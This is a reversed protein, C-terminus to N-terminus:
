RKLGPLGVGPAPRELIVERRFEFLEAPRGGTHTALKGTGEVLGGREVLRRFNQKHLRVGALAEVARQLQLLTFTEPVMEFIVPRYKIKARIRGLATALIRRHDFAMERGGLVSKGGLDEDGIDRAAEPVLGLEYLLEYRELVRDRDWQLGELGFAIAFREKRLEQVGPDDTAAIWDRLEPVIETDIVRPRGNRGDEWPLFQYVNRWRAALGSAPQTERILALYSASVVRPGGQRERPDRFRDGFTYLQEVYGLEVGAYTRVWRRLALEFTRDGEADLPGTPLAEVVRRDGIAGPKGGGEIPTDEPLSVTLVRPQEDTIAVIVANLGVVIRPGDSALARSEM